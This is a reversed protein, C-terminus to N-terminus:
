QDDAADDEDSTDQQGGGSRSARRGLLIAGGLAVLGFLLGCCVWLVSPMRHGTPEATPIAGSTGAPEDRAATKAEKSGFVPSSSEAMTTIPNDVDAETALEDSESQYLLRADLSGRIMAVPAMFAFDVTSSTQPAIRDDRVVGAAAWSGVPHAGEADKFETGFLHTGLSKENGDVDTFVLEVWMRRTETVGTPLYHGAGVNTVTVTVTAATGPAVIEPARVRLTAASRLLATARAANGLAVQAGAFTMHYINERQPGTPEAYGFSPGRAPPSESMHCDQCQLGQKAQPSNKWESYTSLLPVGTGPHRLDHCSGCFAAKTFFASYKPAHPSQPDKIPGYMLGNPQLLQSVNGYPTTSGVVQHCFSCTVGESASQTPSLNGDQGTMNAVPAHCRRCFTGMERGAADEAHSVETLFIPDGLAKAHMSDQWEALQTSHCRCWAAPPFQGAEAVGPKVPVPAGFASSAVCAILAATLCTVFVTRLGACRM